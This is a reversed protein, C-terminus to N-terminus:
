YYECLMGTDCQFASILSRVNDVMQGLQSRDMLSRFIPMYTMLCRQYLKLSFLSIFLRRCPEVNVTALLLNAVEFDRKDSTLFTPLLFNSGPFETRFTIEQFFLSIKM